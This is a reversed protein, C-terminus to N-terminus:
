NPKGAQQAACSEACGHMIAIMSSIQFDSEIESEIQRLMLNICNIGPHAAMQAASTLLFRLSPEDNAQLWHQCQFTVPRGIM